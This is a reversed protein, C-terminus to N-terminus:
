LRQGYRNEDCRRDIDAPGSNGVRLYDGVSLREPTKGRIATYVASGSQQPRYWGVAHYFVMRWGRAEGPKISYNEVTPYPLHQPFYVTM